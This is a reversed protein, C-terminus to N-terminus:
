GAGTRRGYKAATEQTALANGGHAKRGCGAVEAETAGSKRGSSSGGAITNSWRGTERRLEYPRVDSERWSTITGAGVGGRGHTTVRRSLSPSSTEAGMPGVM